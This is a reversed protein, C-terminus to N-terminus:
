CVFGPIPNTQQTYPFEDVFGALLRFMEPDFCDDALEQPFLNKIDDQPLIMYHRFYNAISLRMGPSVRPFAGHWTAGHFVILSGAPTEIPVALEVAEPFRPPQVRRHSGPVYAM